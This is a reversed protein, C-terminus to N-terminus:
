ADKRRRETCVSAAALTQVKTEDVKTVKPCEAAIAQLKREIEADSYRSSLNMGDVFPLLTRPDHLSPPNLALEGVGAEGSTRLTKKLKIYTTNGQSENGAIGFGLRRFMETNLNWVHPLMLVYLNWCKQDSQAMQIAARIMGEHFTEGTELTACKENASINTVKM